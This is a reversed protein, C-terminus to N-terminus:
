HPFPGLATMIGNCVVVELVEGIRLWGRERDWRVVGARREAAREWERGAIMVMSVVRSFDVSSLNAPFAAARDPFKSRAISM